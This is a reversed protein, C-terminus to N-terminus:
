VILNVIFNHIAKLNTDKYRTICCFAHFIYRTYTTFQKWIQIKTDLLVVYKNSETMSSYNHIAKLNTDKYRTICSILTSISLVTTTFQKWIQIKTDLLVVIYKYECYREQNHIAKLNTDKYRTICSIFIVLSIALLQSNSEFKYRQISYYLGDGSGNRCLRNHIAKLNTDKYRTICSLM